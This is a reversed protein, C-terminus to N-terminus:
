KKRKNKSLSKKYNTMFRDIVVEIEDDQQFVAPNRKKIIQVINDLKESPLNQLNLSLRQKEEYTMDRKDPDKAKPKKPITTRGLQGYGPPKLKPDVPITRSESRELTRMEVPPPLSPAQAQAPAPAPAPALMPTKRSTPTPLGAARGMEMRALMPTKKSTPTLLGAVRDMEKRALMPTKRSAPTPLDADRGMEKGALIPTKRSTPTPLDADHGMEIRRIRNFGAEVAKWQDEFVKSLQEAMFRVDQGKPDHLMANSFTLRVDEALERPSKYWNKDEAFERPSKYRTKVTGLNMPHKVITNYDHLGLGKVDVPKNFVWGFKHKMLKMLLESCSKFVPTSNWDLEVGNSKLKKKKKNEKVQNAKPTRRQDDHNGKAVSVGFGRSWESNASFQLEKAQLKKMSDRVQDLESM